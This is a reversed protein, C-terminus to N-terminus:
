FNDISLIVKFNNGENYNNLRWGFSLKLFELIRGVSFGAETFFGDTSKLEKYTSLLRNGDSLELRGANIFASFSLNKLFSIYGFPFRGFDNQINAFYGKDGAFESYNM